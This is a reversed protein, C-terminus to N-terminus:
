LTNQDYAKKYIDLVEEMQCAFEAHAKPPICWEKKQWPKIENKLADRVTVHSIVEAYGLKVMKDALLRLM